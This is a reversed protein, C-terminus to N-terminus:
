NPLEVYLSAIRTNDPGNIAWVTANADDDMYLYSASVPVGLVNTLATSIDALSPFADDIIPDPDSEDADSAAYAYATIPTM